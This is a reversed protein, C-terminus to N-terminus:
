APAALLRGTCLATAVHQFGSATGRRTRLGAANLAAAIGRVTLGAAKLGQMRALLGEERADPHLQVGDAALRLGVLM